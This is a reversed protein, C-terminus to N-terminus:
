YANKSSLVLAVTRALIYLDFWVSWQRLYELDFIVRQQMKDLTDTEGRWGNVQAWGTLGPRVKHRIMYGQILQRYTENHDAAHPRPGVLSMQGSLVNFLQPLEDISTRRIFKGVRTVRVDNKSAQITNGVLSSNAAMSRFKWILFIEGSMGYRPQRFFVPGASEIKIALATLLLLPSIVVLGIFAFVRDLVSKIVWHAEVSPAECVGFLPIGCIMELRARIPKCEAFDHIFYVSATTDQLADFVPRLRIEAEMPLSLYVRDIKLTKTLEGADSFRGIRPFDDCRPIRDPTRDELFGHVKVALWNDDRMRRALEISSVNIAVLLVSVGERRRFYRLAIWIAAPVLLSSSSVALVAWIGIGLWAVPHRNLDIVVAFPILWVFVLASRVLVAGMFFTWRDQVNLLTDLSVRVVFFALCVAILLLSVMSDQGLAPTLKMAFWGALLVVM